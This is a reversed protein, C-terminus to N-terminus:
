ALMLYMATEGFLFTCVLLSLCVVPWELPRNIKIGPSPYVPDVPEGNNILRLCTLIGFMLSFFVAGALLGIVVNHTTMFYIAGKVAGILAGALLRGEPSKAALFAGLFLLLNLIM